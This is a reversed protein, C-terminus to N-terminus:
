RVEGRTTGGNLYNGMALVISLLQQMDGQSKGLERVACELVGIQSAAASASGAWSFAIEHCEMRQLIRPMRNFHFLLQSANDLLAPNKHPKIAELETNTLFLYLDL